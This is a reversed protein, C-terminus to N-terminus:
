EVKPAYFFAGFDRDVELALYRCCARYETTGGRNPAQRREVRDMAVVSCLRFIPKRRAIADFIVPPRAGPLRILWM